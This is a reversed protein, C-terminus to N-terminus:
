LYYIYAGSLYGQRREEGNPSRKYISDTGGLGILKIQKEPFAVSSLVKLLRPVERKSDGCWSGFVIEISVDKYGIRKLQDIVPSDPIYSDFGTNFWSAYPAQKLDNISCQGYIIKDPAAKEQANVLLFSLFLIISAILKQM